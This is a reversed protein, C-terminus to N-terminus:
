FRSEVEFLRMSCRYTVKALMEKPALEVLECTLGRLDYGAHIARREM